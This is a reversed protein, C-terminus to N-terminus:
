FNNTLLESLVTHMFIYMHTHVSYYQTKDQGWLHDDLGLLMFDPSGELMKKGEMIAFGNNSAM